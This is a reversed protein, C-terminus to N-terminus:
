ICRWERIKSAQSAKSCCGSVHWRKFRVKRVTWQDKAFHHISSSIIANIRPRICLTRDSESPCHRGLLSACLVAYQKVNEALVDTYKHASSVYSTLMSCQQITQHTFCRTFNNKRQSPHHHTSFPFKDLFLPYRAVFYHIESNLFFTEHNSRLVLKLWFRSYPFYSNKM